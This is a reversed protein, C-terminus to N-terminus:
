MAKKAAHLPKRTVTVLTHHHDAPAHFTENRAFASCVLVGAPDWYSRGFVRRLTKKTLFHPGTPLM